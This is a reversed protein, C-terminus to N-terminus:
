NWYAALASFLHHLLIFPLLHLCFEPLCWCELFNWLFLIRLFNGSSDIPSSLASTIFILTLSVLCPRLIQYNSTRQGKCTFNEYWLLSTLSDKIMEVWSYFGELSNKTVTIKLEVFEIQNKKWKKASTKLKKWRNWSNKKTVQQFIKIITGQFDKNSLELMQNM